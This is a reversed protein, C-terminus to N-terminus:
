KKFKGNFFGLFLSLNFFKKFVSRFGDLYNDPVRLWAREHFYYLLIKAFFDIAGFGIALAHDNTFVFFMLATFLSALIRFTFSKVITRFRSEKM